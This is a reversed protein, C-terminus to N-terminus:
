WGGFVVLPTVLQGGRSRLFQVGEAEGLFSYAQGRLRGTAEFGHLVRLQCGRSNPKALSGLRARDRRRPRAMGPLWADRRQGSRSRSQQMAGADAASSPRAGMRTLRPEGCRQRRVIGTQAASLFCSSRGRSPGTGSSGTSESSSTLTSESPLNRCRCIRSPGSPLPKATCSILAVGSSAHCHTELKSSYACRM